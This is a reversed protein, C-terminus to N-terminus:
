DIGIKFASNTSQSMALQGLQAPQQLDYVSIVRIPMNRQNNHFDNFSSSGTFVVAAEKYISIHHQRPLYDKKELSFITFM